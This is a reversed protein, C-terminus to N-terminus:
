RIIVELNGVLPVAAAETSAEAEALPIAEASAAALGHTMMVGHHAALHDVGSHITTMTTMTLGILNMIMSQRNM